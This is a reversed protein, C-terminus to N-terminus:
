RERVLLERPALAPDIRGEIDGLFRQGDKYYGATPLIGPCHKEFYGNLMGMFLERVTKSVMSALAVPLQRDEGGTLFHLKMTRGKSSMQYSSLSADEKIIKMQLDPFLRQLSPRYRSRGGLKDIMIQLNRDEQGYQEYARAIFQSVHGFLVTAKNRVVSVKRNFEGAPIPRSWLGKLGIRNRRMDNRLANAAIVIDDRDYTLAWDKWSAKYWPYQDLNDLHDCDLAELLEGLVQPPRQRGGAALFSFVGRQLAKDKGRAKHLKKSDNIAVRGSSGSVKKCVSSSLEDWLSRGLCDDPVEFVAASVVLPGLIPGYGAEDIGVLIAM